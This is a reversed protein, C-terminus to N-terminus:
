RSLKAALVGIAVGVAIGGIISFTLIITNKTNNASDRKQVKVILDSYSKITKKQSEIVKDKQVVLERHAKLSAETAILLKRQEEAFVELSQLLVFGHWILLLQKTKELNYCAFRVGNVTCKEYKPFSTPTQPPVMSTFANALAVRYM